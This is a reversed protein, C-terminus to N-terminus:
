IMEEKTADRVYKLCDTSIAGMKKYNVRAKNLSINNAGGEYDPDDYQIKDDEWYCVPCIEYTGPPRGDLTRNGCCPCNYKEM